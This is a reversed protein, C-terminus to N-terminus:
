PARFRVRSRETVKTGKDTSPTPLTPHLEHDWELPSTRPSRKKFVVCGLLEPQAKPHRHLRQFNYVFNQSCPYEKRPCGCRNGSKWLSGWDSCTFLWQNNISKAFDWKHWYVFAFSFLSSICVCLNLCTETDDASTVDWVLDNKPTPATTPRNAGHRPEVWWLSVAGAGRSPCRFIDVSIAQHGRSTQFSTIVITGQPVHSQSQSCLFFATVNIIEVRRQQKSKSVM